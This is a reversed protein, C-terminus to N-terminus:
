CYAIAADQGEFTDSEARITERETQRPCGKGAMM